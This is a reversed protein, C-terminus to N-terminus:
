LADLRTVYGQSTRKAKGKSMHAYFERTLAAKFEDGRTCKKCGFTKYFETSAVSGECDKHFTNGCRICELIEAAQAIRRKCGRCKPYGTGFAM